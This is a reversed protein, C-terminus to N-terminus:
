GSGVGIFVLFYSTLPPFQQLSCGMPTWLSMLVGCICSSRLYYTAICKGIGYGDPVVPGFGGFMLAPSTLTSTSLINHNIKAYAPDRFIEPLEKGRQQAMIRLVFLHRDFGKGACALLGYRM